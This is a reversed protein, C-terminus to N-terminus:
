SGSWSCLFGPGRRSVAGIAPGDPSQRHGSGFHRDHSKQPFMVTMVALPVAQGPSRGMVRFSRFLSAPSPQLSSSSLPPSTTDGGGAFMWWSTAERRCVSRSMAHGGSYRTIEPLPTSIEFVWYRIGSRMTTSASRYSTVPVDVVLGGTSAMSTADGDVAIY